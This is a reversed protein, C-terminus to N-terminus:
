AYLGKGSSHGCECLQPPPDTKIATWHASSVTTLCQWCSSRSKEQVFEKDHEERPTNLPPDNNSSLTRIPKERRFGLSSTPGATRPIIGEQHTIVEPSSVASRCASLPPHWLNRWSLKSQHVLIIRAAANMSNAEGAIKRLKQTLHLIKAINLKYERKGVM